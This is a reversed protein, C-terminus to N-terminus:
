IKKLSPMCTLLVILPSGVKVLLSAGCLRDHKQTCCDKFRENKGSCVDGVMISPFFNAEIM